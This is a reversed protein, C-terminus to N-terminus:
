YWGTGMIQWGRGGLRGSGGYMDAVQWTQDDNPFKQDAQFEALETNFRQQWKEASTDEEAEYCIWCGYVWLLHHWDAPLTPVDGPNVLAAPLLWYRFLLNHVGDPTPWLHVNQGDFAYFNPTGTTVASRDIERLGVSLLEAQRDTDLLSRARAFNGPLPFTATGAVTAITQSAEDIYYNTRRVILNYGDNIYSALRANTFYAPDFGHSLIEAQIASLQM